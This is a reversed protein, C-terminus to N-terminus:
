QENDTGRTIPEHMNCLSVSVTACECLSALLLLFKSVHRLIDVPWYGIYFSHSLSPPKNAHHNGAPRAENERIVSPRFMRQKILHAKLSRFHPKDKALRKETKQKKTKKKKKACIKYM